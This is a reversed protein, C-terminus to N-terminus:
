AAVKKCEEYCKVCADACDKCTAHKAEHKRCEDECAKCAAMAVKATAALNKSNQAALTIVAQCLAMTEMVSKACAALSTDGAAFSDMCHSVCIEGKTACGAAADILAQNAAGHGMHHHAHGEMAPKEAALAQGAGLAVAGVGALLLDRRNM